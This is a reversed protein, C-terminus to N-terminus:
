KKWKKFVRHAQCNSNLTMYYVTCYFQDKDGLQPVVALHLSAVNSILWFLAPLGHWHAM